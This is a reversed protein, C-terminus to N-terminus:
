VSDVTNTNPPKCVCVRVQELGCVFDFVKCLIVGCASISVM